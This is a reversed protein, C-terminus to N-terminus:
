EVDAPCVFEYRVYLTDRASDPLHIIIILNLCGEVSGRLAM